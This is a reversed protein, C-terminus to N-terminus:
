PKLPTRTIELRKSIKELRVQLASYLPNHSSNIYAGPYIKVVKINMRFRHNIIIFNVQNRIIKDQHGDTVEIYSTM